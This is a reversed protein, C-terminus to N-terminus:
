FKRRKSPSGEVSNNSFLAIRATCPLNAITDCRDSLKRKPTKNEGNSSHKHLNEFKMTPQVSGRGGEVTNASSKSIEYEEGGRSKNTIIFRDLTLQGPEVVM